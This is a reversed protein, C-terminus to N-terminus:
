WLIPKRRRIMVMSTNVFNAPVAMLLLLAENNFICLPRPKTEDRIRGDGMITTDDELVAAGVLGFKPLLLMLLLLLL